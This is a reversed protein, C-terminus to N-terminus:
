PPVYAIPVDAVVPRETGRMVTVVAGDAVCEV